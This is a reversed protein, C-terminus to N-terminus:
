PRTKGLEAIKEIVKNNARSKKQFFFKSNNGYDSRRERAHQRHWGFVTANIMVNKIPTNDEYKAM